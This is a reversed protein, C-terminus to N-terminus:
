REVSDQTITIQINRIKGGLFENNGLFHFNRALRTKGSVVDTM